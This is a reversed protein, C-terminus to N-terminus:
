HSQDVSDKILHWLVLLPPPLFPPTHFHHPSHPTIIMNTQVMKTRNLGPWEIILPPWAEHVARLHRQPLPHYMRHDRNGESTPLLERFATKHTLARLDSM